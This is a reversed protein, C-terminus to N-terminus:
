AHSMARERREPQRGSNEGSQDQSRLPQRGAQEEKEQEQEQRWHQLREQRADGRAWRRNVSSPFPTGWEANEWQEMVDQVYRIREGPTERGSLSEKSSYPQIAMIYNKPLVLRAVHWDIFENAKYQPEQGQGMGEIFETPFRITNRLQDWVGKAGKKVTERGHTIDWAVEMIEIRPGSLQSEDMYMFTGAEEGKENYKVGVKYGAENDSGDAGMVSLTCFAGNPGYSDIKTILAARVDTPPQWEQGEVAPVSPNVVYLCSMGVRPILM